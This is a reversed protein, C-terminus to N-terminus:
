QTMDGYNRSSRGGGMLEGTAVGEFMSEGGVAAKDKPPKIELGANVIAMRLVRLHATREYDKATQLAREHVDARQNVETALLVRDVM